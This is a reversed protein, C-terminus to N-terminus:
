WFSHGPPWPGLTEIALRLLDGRRGHSKPLYGNIISVGLWCMGAGVFGVFAAVVRSSVERGPVLRSETHERLLITLFFLFAFAATVGLAVLLDAKPGFVTPLLAAAGLVLILGQLLYRIVRM